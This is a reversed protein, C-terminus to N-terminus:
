KLLGAIVYAVLGVLLAYASTWGIASSRLRRTERERSPEWSQHTSLDRELFHEIKRIARKASPYGSIAGILSHSIASSTERRGSRLIVEFGNMASLSAVEGLPITVTTWMNVLTIEIDRVVVIATTALLLAPISFAGFLTAVLASEIRQNPSPLVMWSAMLTFLIVATMLARLGMSARITLKVEEGGLFEDGAGCVGVM